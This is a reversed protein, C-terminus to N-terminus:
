PLGDYPRVPVAEAAASWPFGATWTVDALRTQGSANPHFYDWKSIQSLTFPERFVAGGDYHCAAGYDACAQELVQNYEKVRGRVRDRRAKDAAADSNPNALLAQCVHLKGWTWRAVARGHGATWLRKVDPVSAIFVHAAPGTRLVGLAAVIQDRYDAVPTMAAETARCADNAGIEITVYDAKAAVAAAAQAALSDARAGDVALNHEAQIQAGLGEFRALHSKVGSGGTSWSRRTCDAYFGCANFGRTISDGLAAISTPLATREAQGRAAEAVGVTMPAAAVAVLSAAAVGLRAATGLATGGSGAM